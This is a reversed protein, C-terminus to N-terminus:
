WTGNYHILEWEAISKGEKRAVEDIESMLAEYEKICLLETWNVYNNKKLHSIISRDLPCHPPERIVGLCWLYKLYLNIVKQAVGIKFGDKSLFERYKGTMENALGVINEIHQEESVSEKYARHLIFLYERLSERIEAKKKDSTGDRYTGSRQLAAAIAAAACALKIFKWKQGTIM